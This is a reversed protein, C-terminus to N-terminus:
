VCRSAWKSYLPAPFSAGAGTIEQANAAGAGIFALASTALIAKINYTTM